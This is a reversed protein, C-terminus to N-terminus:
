CDKWRQCPDMLTETVICGSPEPGVVFVAITVKHPDVIKRSLLLLSLRRQSRGFSSSWTQYKEAFTMRPRGEERSVELIAKLISTGGDVLLLATCCGGGANKHIYIIAKAVRFMPELRTGLVDSAINLHHIM